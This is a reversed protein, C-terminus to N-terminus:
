GGSPSARAAAVTLTRAVLDYARMGVRAGLALAAGNCDSVVGDRWTSRAEGIRTSDASVTAAAMGRRDLTALRTRGTEGGADNFVVGRCGAMRALWAPYVRGHSGSVVVRGEAEDGLRTVSDALLSETPEDPM